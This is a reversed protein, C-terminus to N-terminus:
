YNLKEEEETYICIWLDAMEVMPGRTIRFIWCIAVSPGM